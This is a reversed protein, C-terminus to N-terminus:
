PARTSHKEDSRTQDLDKSGARWSCADGCFMFVGCCCILLLVKLFACDVCVCVCVCVKGFPILSVGGPILVLVHLLSLM